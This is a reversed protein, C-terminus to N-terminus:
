EVLRGINTCVFLKMALMAGFRALYSRKLLIITTILHFCGIFGRGRFIISQYDVELSRYILMEVALISM